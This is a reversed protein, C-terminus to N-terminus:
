TNTARIAFMVSVPVVSGSTEINRPKGRSRQANDTSTRAVHTKVHSIPFAVHSHWLGRSWLHKVDGVTQTKLNQVVVCRLLISSDDRGPMFDVLAAEVDERLVGLNKILEERIM